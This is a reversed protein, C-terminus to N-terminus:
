VDAGSGASVPSTQGNLWGKAIAYRIVEAINSMELRAMIQHVHYEVTKPAIGLAQGTEKRTRGVAGLCLVDRERLTLRPPDFTGPSLLRQPLGSRLRPTVYIEGALAARIAVVLEEEATDKLVYGAAGAELMEVVIMPVDFSSLAIVRCAPLREHLARAVSVGDLSPMQVDVLAVDPRHCCALEVALQGDCTFAAVRLDPTGGLAVLVGRLIFPHDDVVLVRIM